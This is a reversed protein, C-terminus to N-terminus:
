QSSNEEQGAQGGAHTKDVGDGQKEGSNAWFNRVSGHHNEGAHKREQHAILAEIGNKINRDRNEIHKVGNGDGQNKQSKGMSQMLSFTGNIRQDDATSSNDTDEIGHILHLQGHPEQPRHKLGKREM